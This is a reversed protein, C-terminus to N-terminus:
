MTTKLLNPRTFKKISICKTPNRLRAEIIEKNTESGLVSFEDGGLRYCTYSNTFSKQIAEAVAKIVTDGYDHGFTDNIDKFDNIDLVIISYAKAEALQKTAKDFAARNYLGTLADFSSDFGTLAVRFNYWM